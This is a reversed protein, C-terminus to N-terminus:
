VSFINHVEETEYRVHDGNWMPGLLGSFYPWGQLEKRQRPNDNIGNMVFGRVGFAFVVTDRPVVCGVIPRGDVVQILQANM